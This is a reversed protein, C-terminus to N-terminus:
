RDLVGRPKFMTWPFAPGTRAVHRRGGRPQRGAAVSPPDWSVTPRACAFCTRRSASCRAAALIVALLQGTSMRQYLLLLGVGGLVVVHAMQFVVVIAVRSYHRGLRRYAYALPGRLIGWSSLKAM